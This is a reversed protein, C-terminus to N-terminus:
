RAKRPNSRSADLKDIYRSHELGSVRASRVDSVAFYTHFLGAVQASEASRNEVALNLTLSDGVIVELQFCFAYPWVLQPSVQGALEMLLRTSGDALPQVAVLTWDMIRAFGHQVSGDAAPGFWPLCLPIGGRIAKGAQMKSRPSLWLVEDRGAPQWSLVQAGQLAIVARGHRNNVTLLPLGPEGSQHLAPYLCSSDICIVGAEEALRMFEPDSFM